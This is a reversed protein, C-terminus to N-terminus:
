YHHICAESRRKVVELLGTCFGFSLFFSVHLLHCHSTVNKPLFIITIVMKRSIYKIMLLLLSSM